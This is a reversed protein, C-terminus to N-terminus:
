RRPLYWLLFADLSDTVEAIVRPDASSDIFGVTEGNILVYYNGCGDSAVPLWPRDSWERSFIGRICAIDLAPKDACAGFVGGDGITDGNLILLWTVLSPPLPSVLRSELDRLEEATAGRQVPATPDRAVRRALVAISEWNGAETVCRDQRM